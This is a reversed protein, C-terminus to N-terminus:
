FSARLGATITRGPVITLNDPEGRQVDLLNDGSLLLAMGFPLERSFTAGVRTIGPYARWFSRLQAGTFQRPNAGNAWARAIALRDYATWDSVRTLTASASWGGSLWSLVGSATRAPVGLMRDGSQMDGTYGTALRRVRSDVFSLAASASLHGSRASAQLEWGRNSIEGVNQLQYAMRRAGGTGPSPMVVSDSIGVPQILGFARQDFRTVHVGLSEGLLLDAGVETGSQEEPALASQARRRAAAWALDRVSMEAPRMGRGYAARLKATLPGHDRVVAAGLMPLMTLQSGGTLADNRELRAGATVFLADRFALDSQAVLGTNSRWLTARSIADHRPEMSAASDPDAAAIERLTSHELAFTLIAGARDMSGFRAVSSARLTARDAGGGAARLASDASSPLPTGEDAVNRLRYGDVGVIISHTWRDSQALRLTTGVTYERVGQPASDSAAPTPVLSDAAPATQREDSRSTLLLGGPTADVLPNTGMGAESAYFRATGTVTTRAGVLRLAGTGQVDHSFAGPVFEGMSGFGITAQASRLNSGGELTLEHHQVLAGHAAFATQSIGADSRLSAHAGSSDHPRHRTVINVVGSIADAGYLAAGQPGRIVEVHDIADPAIQTLLLPNAVEIGDIYVKPYSMGFSSAGRISGYRALLSTPSQEWMWMGPVAGDIARALSGANRNALQPGTIVDLAVTLPREPTGIASGTVVVRDLVDVHSAPSVAALGSASRAPALVVQDSGTVVPEVATGRLLDSLAEGASVSDFALCAARDLPLFDGSYSLRIGAAAAVRDLADRLSLDHARLVIPRDLPAPWSGQRAEAGPRGPAACGQQAEAPPGTFVLGLAILAAATLARTAGLQPRRTGGGRRKM